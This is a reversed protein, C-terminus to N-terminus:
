KSEIVPRQTVLPPSRSIEEIPPPPITPDMGAEEEQYGADDPSYVGLVKNTQQFLYEVGIRETHQQPKTHTPNISKGLVRQGLQDVSYQLYRSYVRHEPAETLLAYAACDENWRVLGEMLYAQFHVDNAVTGTLIF